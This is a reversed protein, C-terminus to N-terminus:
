RRQSLRKALLNRKEKKEEKEDRLGRLRRRLDFGEKVIRGLFGM